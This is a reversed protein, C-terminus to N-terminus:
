SRARRAPRLHGHPPLDRLRPAGLPSTRDITELLARVTDWPLARPLKEGRYLALRTSRRTWGPRSRAPLRWSGSSRESTPWWMSSHRVRSAPPRRCVSLHRSGPPRAYRSADPAKRLRHLGSVREGHPRPAGPNIARFRPRAASPDQLRRSAARRPDVRAASVAGAGVRLVADDAPGPGGVQSGGGFRHSCLGVIAGADPEDPGRVGRQQLRQVLRPAARFHERAREASYGQKLLWAGYGDLIPGIVTLSTYRRHVRPFLEVLM